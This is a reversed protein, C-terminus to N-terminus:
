LASSRTRRHGARPAAGPAPCSSAESSLSRGGAFAEGWAEPLAGGGAPAKQPSAALGGVKSSPATLRRVRYLPTVTLVGDPDADCKVTAKGETDVAYLVGVYWKGEYEVEVRDGLGLPGGDPTNGAHFAELAERTPWNAVLIGQTSGRHALLVSPEPGGGPSGAGVGGAAPPAATALEGPVLDWVAAFRQASAVDVKGGCARVVSLLQAISEQHDFPVSLRLRGGPATPLPWQAVRRLHVVRGGVPVEFGVDLVEPARLDVHEALWELLTQLEVNRRDEAAAAPLLATPGAAAGCGAAARVGGRGPGAVAQLRMRLQKAETEVARLESRLEAVENTVEECDWLLAEEDAESASDVTETAM